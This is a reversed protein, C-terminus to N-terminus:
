TAQQPSPDLVSCLSQWPKDLGQVAISSSMEMHVLWPCIPFSWMARPNLYHPGLDQRRPGVVQIVYHPSSQVLFPPLWLNCVVTFHPWSALEPCLNISAVFVEPIVFCHSPVSKELTPLFFCARMRPYLCPSNSSYTSVSNCYQQSLEFITGLGHLQLLIFSKWFCQCPPASPISTARLDILLEPRKLDGSPHSTHLWIQSELILPSGTLIHLPLLKNCVM